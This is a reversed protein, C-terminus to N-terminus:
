FAVSLYYESYLNRITLQESVYSNTFDPSLRVGLSWGTKNTFYKKLGVGVTGGLSLTNYQRLISTYSPPANNTVNHHLKINLRPGLEIFPHFGHQLPLSFQGLVPIQLFGIESSIQEGSSSTFQNVSGLDGRFGGQAYQVELQLSAWNNLTRNVFLAISPDFRANSISQGLQHGDFIQQGSAYSIKVGIQTDSQAQVSSSYLTILIFSISILIRLM